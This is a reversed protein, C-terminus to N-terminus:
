PLLKIASRQPTSSLALTQRYYIQSPRPSLPCFLPSVSATEVKSWTHRANRVHLVERERERERERQKKEKEKGEVVDFNQACAQVSAHRSHAKGEPWNDNAELSWKRDEKMPLKERRVMRSSRENSCSRRVRALRKAVLIEYKRNVTWTSVM